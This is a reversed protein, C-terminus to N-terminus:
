LNNQRSCDDLYDMRGTMEKTATKIWNMEQNHAKLQDPLQKNEEQVQEVLAEKEEWLRQSFELSQLSITLERSRVRQKGRLVHLPTM